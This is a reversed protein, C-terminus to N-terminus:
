ARRKRFNRALLAVLCLVLAIVAAIRLSSFVGSWFASRMAADADPDFEVARPGKGTLTVEPRSNAFSDMHLLLITFQDGQNLQDAAFQVSHDTTRTTGLGSPWSKVAAINGSGYDVVARIAEEPVAGKNFIEIKTVSVSQNQLNFSALDKVSYLVKAQQPNVHSIWPQCLSWLTAFILSGVVAVWIQSWRSPPKEAREYRYGGQGESPVMIQHPYQQMLDTVDMKLKEALDPLTRFQKACAAGIFTSFQYLKPEPM